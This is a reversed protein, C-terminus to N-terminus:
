YLDAIADGDSQESNSTILQTEAKRCRLVYGHVPLFNVLAYLGLLDSVARLRSANVRRQPLGGV